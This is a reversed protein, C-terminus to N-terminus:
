AQTKLFNDFESRTPMSPQAGVKTASLAGAAAGWRIAEPLTYGEILAAALAGNFADGAAVTDVAEVKFAPFFEAQAVAQTAYVVGLAGMKIIAAKVGKKLLIQAAHEADAKTKVPFGVLQSAEVENPTIIDVLNYLEAPLDLAPAPDLVVTIGQQHALRAAALTTELPIELQLLLLQANSLNNGLREVDAPGMRGNAGPIIIINNQAQDDVVIVAVGSSVDPDILVASSEVGAQELNQRLERGFGDGGVRGIMKTPIHLRGAAVAQNAGKGGPATFFEHGTITEAPAPLRPTRAVLDMNISGFVLLAMSGGVVM